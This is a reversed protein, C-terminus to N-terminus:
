DHGMQRTVFPFSHTVCAFSPESCCGLMTVLQPGDELDVAGPRKM